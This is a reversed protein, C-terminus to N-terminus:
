PCQLYVVSILVMKLVDFIVVLRHYKACQHDLIMRNTNSYGIIFHKLFRKSSLVQGPLLDTDNPLFHCHTMYPLGYVNQLAYRWVIYLDEVEGSFLTCLCLNIM